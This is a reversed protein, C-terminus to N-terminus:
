RSVPATALTSNVADFDAGYWAWLGDGIGIIEGYGPYAGLPISNVYDLIIGIQADLTNPGDMYSQLSASAMQVVKDFPDLQHPRRALQRYKEIQTALTSGGPGRGGGTAKNIGREILARGLRTWDVARTLPYRPDLLDRNEIFM